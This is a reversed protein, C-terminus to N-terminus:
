NHIVVCPFQKLLYNLSDLLVVRLHLGENPRIEVLENFVCSLEWLRGLAGVSMLMVFGKCLDM